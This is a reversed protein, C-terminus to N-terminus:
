QPRYYKIHVFFEAAFFVDALDIDLFKRRATNETSIAIRIFKYGYLDNPVIGIPLEPDRFVLTPKDPHGDLALLTTMLVVM